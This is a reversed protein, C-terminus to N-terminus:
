NKGKNIEAMILQRLYSSVSLGRIEATLKLTGHEEASLQVIATKDRKAKAETKKAM